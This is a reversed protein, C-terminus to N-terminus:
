SQRAQYSAFGECTFGLHYPVRMCRACFETDPCKRCRFRFTQRHRAAEESLKKGDLGVSFRM